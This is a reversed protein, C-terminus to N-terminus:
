ENIFELERQREIKAVIRAHKKAAIADYREKIAAYKFQPKGAKFVSENVVV